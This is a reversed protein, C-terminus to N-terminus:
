LVLGTTRDCDMVLNLCEVAAGSAGKGLNDYRAVLLIREENGLVSIEMGDRGSLGAASLFGAEDPAEKYRVIPTDYCKKYIERIDAMGGALEGAFLPVTVVMGSYFDAVIPCFIPAEALGTLAKMEKLHKHEQTLAYQRPAFLLPDREESEYDAIMKKGGGSYGTVSHCTLRATHPLVGSQILPYVLAIFGSAHCGPVAIRKSTKIKEEFEPSLEPFGYCWGPATRHATSTDLIVTDSDGALGASERAADDPLCFFAADASKIAERRAEPDHRVEESLTIVTVDSRLNLRDYIRLGTTGSKGDIFVKIM